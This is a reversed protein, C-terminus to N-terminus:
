SQELAKDSCKWVSHGQLRSTKKWDANQVSFRSLLGMRNHVRSVIIAYHAPASVVVGVGGLGPVLVGLLICVLGVILGSHAEADELTVEVRLRIAAQGPQVVSCTYM